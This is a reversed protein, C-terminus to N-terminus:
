ETDKIKLILRHLRSNTGYEVKLEFFNPYLEALKVLLAVEYTQEPELYRYELKHKIGYKELLIMSLFRM